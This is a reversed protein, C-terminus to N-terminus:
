RDTQRTSRAYDTPTQGYQKRFARIFHSSDAFRWHAALESISPRGVPAALELKAQELRRRRIYSTVSEETAAFARYLTRVSVRLERALAAPSLEPDILRSDVIDKAAQALAPALRPESDDFAQVLVGKVLELLSARAAQVGASSLDNLTTEVIGVYAMLLRVEASEVSGVTARDGILPRLPAAPLILVKARTRPQVEFRVPPGNHRAIFRGAPVTDEVQDRSRVFRWNGRQMVHVLVRDDLQHSAGRTGGTISEGYLDAIVADHVKSARVRVRFGDPGLPELPPLPLWEGTQGEWARRFIDFGDRAASPATVDVFFNRRPGDAGPVASGRASGTADM